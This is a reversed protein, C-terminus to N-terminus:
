REEGSQQRSAADSANRSLFPQYKFSSPPPFLQPPESIIQVVVLSDREGKKEKKKRLLHPRPTEQKRKRLEPRRVKKGAETPSGIKKGQFPASYEGQTPFPRPNIKNTGQKTDQVKIKFKQNFKIIDNHVTWHTFPLLCARRENGALLPTTHVNQVASDGFVLLSKNAQVLIGGAHPAACM